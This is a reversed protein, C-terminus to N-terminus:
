CPTICAGGAEARRPTALRQRPKGISQNVGRMCLTEYYEEGARNGLRATLFAMKEKLEPSRANAYPM